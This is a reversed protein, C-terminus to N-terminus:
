RSTPTMMPSSGDRKRPCPEDPRLHLFARFCRPRMCRSALAMRAKAAQVFDDRDPEEHAYELNESHVSCALTYVWWKLTRRGVRTAKWCIWTQTLPERTRGLLSGDWNVPVSFLSMTTPAVPLLGTTRALGSASRRCRSITQSNAGAVRKQYVRFVM